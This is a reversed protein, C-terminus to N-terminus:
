LSGVLPLLLAVLEAQRRVNLKAFVTKLQTRGTQYSIRLALSAAPLSAGGAIKLALRAEATTLGFRERLIEVHGAGGNALPRIVLLCCTQPSLLLRFNDDPPHFVLPYLAVSFSGDSNQLRITERGAVFTERRATQGIVRAIEAAAQRDLIELRDGVGIRVLRAERALAEGPQNAAVVRGTASVMFAADAMAHVIGSRAPSSANTLRERLMSLALGMAPALGQVVPEIVLNIRETDRASYHVALEASRDRDELLRIATAADSEPLHRLFDTYFETDRFSASPLFDETRRPKMLPLSLNFPMWGNIGGYYNAFDRIAGEEFGSQVLPMDRSAKRDNVLFLAKTGPILECFRDSFHQWQATDTAAGM